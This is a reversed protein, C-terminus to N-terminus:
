IGLTVDEMSGSTDQDNNEIDKPIKKRKFEKKAAVADKFSVNVTPIQLHESIYDRVRDAFMVPNNEEEKSPAIVPLFEM